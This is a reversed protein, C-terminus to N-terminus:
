LVRILRIAVHHPLHYHLVAGITGTAFETYLMGVRVCLTYMFLHIRYINLSM